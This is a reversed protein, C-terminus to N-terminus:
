RSGAAVSPQGLSHHNAAVQTLLHVKMKTDGIMNAFDGIKAPDIQDQAALTVAITAAMADRIDSQRSDSESRLGAAEAMVTALEAPKDIAVATLTIALAESFDDCDKIKYIEDRGVIDSFHAEIAEALKRQANLTPDFFRYSNAASLAREARDLAKGVEENVQDDNPQATAVQGTASSAGDSVGLWGNLTSDDARLFEVRALHLHERDLRHEMAGLRAVALRHQMKDGISETARHATDMMDKVDDAAPGPQSGSVLRRHDMWRHIARVKYIPIEIQDIQTKADGWSAAAVVMATQVACRVAVNKIGGLLAGGNPLYGSVMGIANAASPDAAYNLAQSGIPGLLAGFGPVQGVIQGIFGFPNSRKSREIQAVSSAQQPDVTALCEILVGRYPGDPYKNSLCGISSALWQQAEQQRGMIMMARAVEAQATAALVQDRIQGPEKGQVALGGAQGVIVPESLPTGTRFLWSIDVGNQAAANGSPCAARAEPPIAVMAALVLSVVIPVARSHRGKVIAQSKM